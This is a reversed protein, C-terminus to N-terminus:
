EVNADDVLLAIGAMVLLYCGARLLKLCQQFGVHVVHDDTNFTHVAPVPDRVEAFVQTDIENKAV